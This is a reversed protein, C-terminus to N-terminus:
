ENFVFCSWGNETAGAIVYTKGDIVTWDCFGTGNTGTPGTGTKNGQVVLTYVTSVADLETLDKPLAEFGAKYNSGSIPVLRLYGQKTPASVYMFYKQGNVTLFKPSQVNSELAPIAVGYPDLGWTWAIYGAQGVNSYYLGHREGGTGNYSWPAGKFIQGLASGTYEYIYLSGIYNGAATVGRPATIPTDSVVGNIVPIEWITRTCDANAGATSYSVFILSGETDDGVSNMDDGFREGTPVAIAQALTAKTYYGGVKDTLKYIALDGSNSMSSVYVAEGLKAISCVKFLGKSADLGETITYVHEGTLVDFVAIKTDVKHASPVYFYRGLVAAHRDWNNAAPDCIADDWTNDEAHWKAWVRGLQDIIRLDFTTVADAYEIDPAFHNGNNSFLWQSNSGLLSRFSGDQTNDNKLGDGFTLKSNAMGYTQIAQAEGSKGASNFRNGKLIVDNPGYGIRIGYSYSGNFTCNSVEAITNYIQMKRGRSDTGNITVNRFVDREAGKATGIWVGTGDDVGVNITVNEVLVGFGGGDIEIGTTHTNTYWDTEGLTTTSTETTNITFNKITAKVGKLEFSGVLTTSQDGGDIVVPVTFGTIKVEEVLTAGAQVKIEATGSTLAKAADVAAQLTAYPLGNFKVASNVVPLTAYAAPAITIANSTGGNVINAIGAGYENTDVVGDGFTITAGAALSSHVNVAATSTCNFKNGAIVTAPALSGVRMVYSYAATFENDLIDIPGGYVQMARQGEGGFKCNKVVDKVASTGQNAIYVSTANALTNNFTVGDIVVGYGAETIHIASDYNSNAYAGGLTAKNGEAPIITMNKITTANKFTEIGGTLTALGKGDIVVPVAIKAGDIKM